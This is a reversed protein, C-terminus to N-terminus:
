PLLINFIVTNYTSQSCWIDLSTCLPLSMGLLVLLLIWCFDVPTPFTTQRKKKLCHKFAEKSTRSSM